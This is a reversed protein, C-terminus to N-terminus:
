LGDINSLQVGQLHLLQAANLLLQTQLTAPGLRHEDLDDLIMYLSM